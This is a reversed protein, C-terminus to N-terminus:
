EPEIEGLHRYVALWAGLVSMLISFAFLWFLDILGFYTIAVDSSYFSLLDSVIPSLWASILVLCGTAILAGIVGYWFGSYLFPLRIFSDTGGVLKIVVIEQRRNEIELRISNSIALVAALALLFGILWAFREALTVYGILREVWELDLSVDDVGSLLGIRNAMQDLVFKQNDLDTSVPVVEIVAPLPNADFLSLLDSGAFSKFETLGEEPTILRVKSVGNVAQIDKELQVIDANNLGVDLYVSISLQDQWGSSLQQLNSVVLLLLMPLTLSVAVLSATMLSALRSQKIRALSSKLCERHHVTLPVWNSFRASLGEGKPTGARPRKPSKVKSDKKANSAIPESASTTGRSGAGEKFTAGKRISNSHPKSQAANSKTTSAKPANSRTAGKKNSDRIM